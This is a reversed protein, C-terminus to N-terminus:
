NVKFELFVPLHDSIFRANKLNECSKVFDISGANLKQLGASFYFNDIAHNTYVGNKCKRKLTTAKNHLASKFGNKYFPEWVEQNEDLNFDGAIIVNKSDLRKEYDIFHTIELEPKDYYKRSHYNVIYFPKNDGKKIFSAIYPERYVKESLEKDLFPKGNLTVKATKWLFAYRESMYVSPSQTPDSIKYDWKSGMRNLEDAIKAVSQAGAPDKAVVEQLAVIDFNRVITAITHIEDADKTRGLDRINWSTLTLNKSESTNLFGDKEENVEIAINSAIGNNSTNALETYNKTNFNCSILSALLFLFFFQKKKMLIFVINNRTM